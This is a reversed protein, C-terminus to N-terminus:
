ITSVRGQELVKLDPHDITELEKRIEDVYSPKFHYVRVPFTRNLKALQRGVGQPTLHRSDDALRQFRNPYSCELFLLRPDPLKNTLEWIRDTDATDSPYIWSRGNESVIIGMNPVLHNVMASRIELDGIKFVKGVEVPMYVISPEESSPLESFNPWLINNFLHARLKEIVQPIAHIRLPHHNNGFINDVLLPLQGTHDLHTHSIIVDTISRQEQFSLGGVLAGSDIALSGNVLFSTLRSDKDMGGYCGLVKIEM